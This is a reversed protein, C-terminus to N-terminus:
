QKAKRKELFYTIVRILFVLLIFVTVVFTGPPINNNWNDWNFWGRWKFVIFHLVSLVVAILGSRQVILWNQGTMKEAVSPLSTIAIILFYVIKKAADNMIKHFLLIIIILIGFILSGYGVATLQSLPYLGSHDLAFEDEEGEHSFVIYIYLISLLLLFVLLGKKM